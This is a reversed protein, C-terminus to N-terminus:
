LIEFCSGGLVPVSRSRIDDVHGWRIRELTLVFEALDAATGEAEAEVSGDGLNRVWGTIGLREAAYKATYRFGVGQVYGSFIYHMRITEM